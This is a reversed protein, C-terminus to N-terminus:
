CLLRISCCWAIVFLALQHIIFSTCLCLHVSICLLWCKLIVICSPVVLVDADCPGASSKPVSTGSCCVNPPAVLLHLYNLITPPLNTNLQGSGAAPDAVAEAAAHSTSSSSSSSSSNSSDSPSSSDSGSSSSSDVDNGDKAKTKKAPSKRQRNVTRRSMTCHLQRLAQGFPNDDIDDACHKGPRRQVSIEGPYLQQPGDCVLRTRGFLNDGKASAGLSFTQWVELGMGRM